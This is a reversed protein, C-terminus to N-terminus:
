LLFIFSCLVSPEPLALHKSCPPKCNEIGGTKIRCSTGLRRRLMVRQNTQEADHASSTQQHASTATCFDHRVLLRYKNKIFPRGTLLLFFFFACGATSNKASLLTFSLATRRSCDFYRSAHKLATGKFTPVQHFTLKYQSSDRDRLFMRFFINM